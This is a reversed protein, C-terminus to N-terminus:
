PPRNRLNADPDASAAGGGAREVQRRLALYTRSNPNSRLLEAALDEAERIPPAAEDTRGQLRRLRALELLSEALTLRHAAHQPQREVLRDAQANAEVLSNAAKDLNGLREQLRAKALLAAVLEVRLDDADPDAEVLGLLRAVAEELPQEAIDPRGVAGLTHALELNTAALARIAAPRPDITETAEIRRRYFDDLQPQLLVRRRLLGDADDPIEREIAQRIAALLRLSERAQQDALDLERQVRDLDLRAREARDVAWAAHGLRAHAYLAAAASGLLALGALALARFSSRAARPPETPASAPSSM